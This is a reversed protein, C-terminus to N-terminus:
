FANTKKKKRGPLSICINFICHEKCSELHVPLHVSLSCLSSCHPLVTLLQSTLVPGSARGNVRKSAGSERESVGCQENREGATAVFEAASVATLPTELLDALSVIGRVESQFDM